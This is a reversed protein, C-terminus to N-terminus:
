KKGPQIWGPPIEKLLSDAFLQAGHSSYHHDHPLFSEKTTPQEHSLYPVGHKELEGSFASVPINIGPAFSDLFKAVGMNWGPHIRIDGNITGQRPVAALFKAGSREASQRMSRVMDVTTSIMCGSFDGSFLKCRWSQYLGYGGYVLAMLRSFRREYDVQVWERLSPYRQLLGGLQTQIQVPTGAENRAIEMQLMLDHMVTGTVETSFIVHTPSYRELLQGLLVASHSSKYGEVGANIVEVRPHKKRLQAELLRAPTATEPLGPAAMRSSGLILIRSWGKRPKASYEKDRLGMSNFAMSYPKGARVLNERCLPRFQYALEPHPQWCRSHPDDKGLGPTIKACAERAGAFLILFICAKLPTM